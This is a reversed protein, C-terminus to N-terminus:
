TTDARPAIQNQSEWSVHNLILNSGRPEPSLENTPWAGLVLARLAKDSMAGIEQDLSRGEQALAVRSARGPYDYPQGTLFSASANWHDAGTADWQSHAYDHSNSQLGHIVVLDSKHA